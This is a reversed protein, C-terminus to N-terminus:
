AAVREIARLRASRSRPNREQEDSSATRSAPRLLRFPAAEEPVPLHVPTTSTTLERFVGKVIRDEGSHYTLVVGRGNPILRGLAARLAPELITLEDNVAIRLAQFTRKAPHGGTRRTAAPIAAVVVEALQVTGRIPRAAVIAKAIRGAFREDGGSRIISSLKPESWQNVITDATLAADPDMRMDLPGDHRFSFGREPIDLQPSSVGLDFLFGSIDAIGARDLLDNLRDFRGALVVARDGYPTLREQAARRAEPDQDVGVVRLHPAADLLATAHGAGGLTADVVIGRPVASLIEVTESVLVPAHDFWSPTM